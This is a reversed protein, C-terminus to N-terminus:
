KARGRFRLEGTAGPPVNDAILYRVHTVDYPRAPRTVGAKTVTLEALVGFSNGGDVSVTAGPTDTDVFVLGQPLPYKINFNAAPEAAPNSYILTYILIDGPVATNAPAIKVIRKGAADLVPKEVTIRSEIVVQPMPIPTQAQPSTQAPAALQGTSLAAIVFLTKM